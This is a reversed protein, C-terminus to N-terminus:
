PQQPASERCAPRSSSAAELVVLAPAVEKLRSVLEHIGAEDNAFQWAEDQDTRAVDLHAKGVDIGVFVAQAGM